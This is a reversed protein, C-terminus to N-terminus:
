DYYCLNDHYHGIRKHRGARVEARMSALTERVILPRVEPRQGAYVGLRAGPVALMWLQLVIFADWYEARLLANAVSSFDPRSTFVEYESLSFPTGGTHLSRYVLFLWTREAMSRALVRLRQRIKGRDGDQPYPIAHGSANEAASIIVIPNYTLCRLAGTGGGASWLRAAEARMADPTGCIGASERGGENVRWRWEKGKYTDENADGCPALPYAPPEIGLEARDLARRLVEPMTTAQASRWCGPLAVTDNYYPSEATRGRCVADSWVDTCHVDCGRAPEAAVLAAAALAVLTPPETGSDDAPAVGGGRARKKASESAM